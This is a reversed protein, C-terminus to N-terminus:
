DPQPAGPALRQSAAGFRSAILQAAYTGVGEVEPSADADIVVATRPTVLFSDRAPAIEITTPNPVIAYAPPRDASSPGTRPTTRCAAVFTIALAFSLRAIRHTM